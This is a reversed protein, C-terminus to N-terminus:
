PIEINSGTPSRASFVIMPICKSTMYYELPMSPLKDCDLRLSDLEEKRKM